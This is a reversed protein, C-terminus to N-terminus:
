LLAAADSGTETVLSRAARQDDGLDRYRQHQQDAGPQQSLTKDPQSPDIKTVFGFPQQRHPHRSRLGSVRVILNLSVEVLPHEVADRLYV